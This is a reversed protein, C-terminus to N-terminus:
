PTYLSNFDCDAYTGINVYVNGTCGPGTANTKIFLCGPAYGNDNDTPKTPGRVMIPRSLEDRILVRIDTPTGIKGKSGKLTIENFTEKVGTGM